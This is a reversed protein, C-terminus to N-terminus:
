CEAEGLLRHMRGLGAIDAVVVGLSTGPTWARVAAHLEDLLARRNPLGTQEDLRSAQPSSKFTMEYTAMVMALVCTLTFLQNGVSAGFDPLAAAAALLEQGVAFAAIGRFRVGDSKWCAWAFGASAAVAAATRTAPLLTPSGELLILLVAVLTAGYTWARGVNSRGSCVQEIAMWMFGAYMGPGVAELPSYASGGQAFAAAATGAAAWSLHAFGIFLNALERRKFAWVALFSAAVVFRGLHLLDM